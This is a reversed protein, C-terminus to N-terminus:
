LKHVNENLIHTPPLPPPPPTLVSFLAKKFVCQGKVEILDCDNM